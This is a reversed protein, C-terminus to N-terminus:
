SRGGARKGRELVFCVLSLALMAGFWWIYYEAWSM